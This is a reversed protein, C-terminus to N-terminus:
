ECTGDLLCFEGEGCVPDCEVITIDSFSSGPCYHETGADTMFYPVIDASTPVIEDIELPESTKTELAGPALVTDITESEEGDTLVLKVGDIADGGASRALTTECADAGCTISNAKVDIEFCQSSYDIDDVGKDVVNKIVVWVIGIAVIVLLVILLTTVVASLGRKNKIM